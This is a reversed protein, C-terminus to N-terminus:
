RRKRQFNYDSPKRETLIKTINVRTTSSIITLNFAMDKVKRWNLEETWESTQKMLTQHKYKTPTQPPLNPPAQPKKLIKKKEQPSLIQRQIQLYCDKDKIQM